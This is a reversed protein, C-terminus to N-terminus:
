DNIFSRQSRTMYLSNRTKLYMMYYDFTEKSVSQFKTDVYKERHGYMGWPDYPVSQHVKIYYRDTSAHRNITKVIKAYSKEKKNIVVGGTKDYIAEQINIDEPMKEPLNVYEMRTGKSTQTKVLLLSLYTLVIPVFVSRWM